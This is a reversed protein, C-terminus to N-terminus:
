VRSRRCLISVVVSAGTGATTLKPRTYRPVEAIPASADATATLSATSAADSLPVYTTGDQSGEITLTAGPSGWGGTAIMARDAYDLHNPGIPAGDVDATTVTWKFEVTDNGLFEITPAVTAM